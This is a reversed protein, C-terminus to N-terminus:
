PSTRATPQNQSPVVAVGQSASLAQQRKAAHHAKLLQSQLASRLERYHKRAKAIREAMSGKPAFRSQLAAQNTGDLGSLALWFGKTGQNLCRSFVLRRKRLRSDPSRIRKMLYTVYTKGPKWYPETYVARKGITGNSWQHVAKAVARKVQREGLIGPKLRDSAIAGHIHLGTTRKTGKTQGEVVFYYELDKFGTEASLADRLARAICVRVDRGSAVLKREYDPHLNGTFTIGGLEELPIMALQLKGWESLNEWNPPRRAGFWRIPLNAWLQHERNIHFPKGQQTSIFTDEDIGKVCSTHAHQAVLLETRAKIIRLAKGIIEGDRRRWRAQKGRWQKGYKRTM